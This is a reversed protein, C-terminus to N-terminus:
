SDYVDDCSRVTLYETQAYISQTWCKCKLKILLESPRSCGMRGVSRLSAESSLDISKVTAKSVMHCPRSVPPQCSLCLRRLACPARCPAGDRKESYLTSVRGPLEQRVFGRIELGGTEQLSSSSTADHAQGARLSSPAPSHGHSPTILPPNAISHGDVRGDGDVDHLTWM